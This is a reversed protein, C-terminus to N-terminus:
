CGYLEDSRVVRKLFVRIKKLLSRKSWIYGVTVGNAKRGKDALEEISYSVESRFSFIVYSIIAVYSHIDSRPRVYIAHEM